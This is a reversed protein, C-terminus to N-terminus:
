LSQYAMLYLWGVLWCVAERSEGKRWEEMEAMLRPIDDLSCRTDMCLQHIYSKAPRGVITQEHIPTWLLVDCSITGQEKINTYNSGPSLLVVRWQHIYELAVCMFFDFEPKSFLAIEQEIQFQNYIKHNRFEPQVENKFTWIKIMWIKIM